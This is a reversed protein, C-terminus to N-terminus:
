RARPAMVSKDEAYCLASLGCEACKPKRAVCLARGHHM